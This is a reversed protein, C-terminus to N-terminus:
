KWKEAMVRWRPLTSEINGYEKSKKYNKAKEIDADSLEQRCFHCFSKIGDSTCHTHQCQTEENKLFDPPSPYFSRSM